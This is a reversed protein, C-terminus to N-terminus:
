RVADAAEPLGRLYQQYWGVTLILAEEVTHGPSWGLIQRAKAASLYQHGIEHSATGRVDPELHTAAAIQLMEVFELVSVPREASFNFAEGALERQEALAEALQLYAMVADIVYLYDRTLSGDSRIVPRRGELLSRITGPVLREWNTDGPGFLNGCRTIVVPLLYTRAYSAALMDGCAKSVDYPNAALLPMQETYPLARQSGYAKDSSAVLLQGLHRSRRGAELVSWTGRINAEFTSIPNENAVQVQSQAALHFGTEVEYEGFLREVVRLDEVAGRVVSVQHWWSEAAPTLPVEDRVLIVVKAGLDVLNGVLHSGVFGTAGTVAVRRHQWFLASPSWEARQTTPGTSM